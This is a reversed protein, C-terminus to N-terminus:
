LKDRWGKEKCLQVARQNWRTSSLLSDHIIDGCSATHVSLESDWVNHMLDSGTLPTQCLHACAAEMWSGGQIPEMRCQWGGKILGQYGAASSTDPQRESPQCAWRPQPLLLPLPLPLWCCCCCCCHPTFTFSHPLGKTRARKNGNWRQVGLRNVAELQEALHPKGGTTSPATPFCVVLGAPLTSGM